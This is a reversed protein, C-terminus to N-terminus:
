LIPMQLLLAGRAFPDFSASGFASSVGGPGMSGLTDVSIRPASEDLQDILQQQTADPSSVLTGNTLTGNMLTFYALAAIQNNATYKLTGNAILEDFLGGGTEEQLQRRQPVVVYAMCAVKYSWHCPSACWRGGTDEHGFTNVFACQAEDDMWSCKPSEPDFQWPPYALVGIMENGGSTHNVMGSANVTAWTFQRQNGSANTQDMISNGGIWTEVGGTSRYLSIRQQETVAKALDGQVGHCKLAGDEWSGSWSTTTSAYVPPPPPPSPQACYCLRDEGDYTSGFEADCWQQTDPEWAVIGSNDIALSCNDRRGMPNADNHQPSQIITSCTAGWMDSRQELVESPITPTPPAVCVRDIAACTTTCSFGQCSVDHEAGCNLASSWFWQAVSLRPAPACYCTYGMMDCTKATAANPNWFSRDNNYFSCGYPVNLTYVLRIPYIFHAPALAKCEEFTLAQDIPCSGSRLIETPQVPPPSPPSPPSPFLNLPCVCQITESCDGYASPLVGDKAKGYYWRVKEGEPKNLDEPYRVFWCGLPYKTESINSFRTTQHNTALIECETETIAGGPCTGSTLGTLMAMPQVPSPPAAGPCLCQYISSCRTTVADLTGDGQNFGWSKDNTKAPNNFQFCGHPFNMETQYVEFTTGNELVAALRCEAESLLGTPCYGSIKFSNEMSQFSQQSPASPPSSASHFPPPPSSAGGGVAVGILVSLLTMVVVVVTVIMVITQVPLHTAKSTASESTKTEALRPNRRNHKAEIPQAQDFFPNTSTPPIEVPGYKPLGPRGTRAPPM